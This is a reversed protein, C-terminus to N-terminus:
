RDERRGLGCWGSLDSEYRNVMAFFECEMGPKPGRRLVENLRSRMHNELWESIDFPENRRKKGM